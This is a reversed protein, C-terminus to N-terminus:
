LRSPMLLRSRRVNLVSRPVVSRSASSTSSRLHQDALAADVRRSSMLLEGLGAHPRHQDALAQHAAVVDAAFILCINPM